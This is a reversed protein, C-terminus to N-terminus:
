QTPLEGGKISGFLLGSVRMGSAAQLTKSLLMGTPALGNKIRFQDVAIKLDSSM